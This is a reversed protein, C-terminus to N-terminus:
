EKEVIWWDFSINSSAQDPIEVRFYSGEIKETVTLPVRVASAGKASVFIKSTPKVSTTNIVVSRGNTGTTDDIGDGNADNAIPMIIGEGLTASNEDDVKVSYTGAMVEKAKLKGNLLDLSGESDKYLLSNTNLALAFDIVAKNQEQILAMEDELQTTRKQLNSITADQDNVKGVIASLDPSSVTNEALTTKQVEFTINKIKILNTSKFKFYVRMFNLHEWDIEGTKTGEAINLKIENWGSFLWSHAPKDWQIERADMENGLETHIDTISDANEVYIFFSLTGNEMDYDATDTGENKNVSIEQFQDVNEYRGQVSNDDVTANTLNTKVEGIEQPFDYFTIEEVPRVAEAKNSSSAIVDSMSDIRGKLYNVSLGLYDIRDSSEAMTRIMNQFASDTEQTQNDIRAGLIQATKELNKTANYNQLIYTTNEETKELLSMMMTGYNMGNQKIESRSSVNPLHKNRDIYSQLDELTRLQYGNEFVYDPVNLITGDDIFSGNSVRIDGNVHLKSQPNTTGIGVNGAGDTKVAMNNLEQIASALLSTMQPYKVGYLTGSGTYAALRPNVDAVEEAIFGLDAQGSDKWDFKVPRLQMLTDLGMGLDEINDKLSRLSSCPSLQGSSNKCVYTASTYTGDTYKIQGNVDLTSGPETTGIGVKGDGQMSMVAIPPAYANSGGYLRFIMKNGAAAGATISSDIGNWVNATTTGSNLYYTYGYKIFNAYTGDIGTTTQRQIEGQFSTYASAKAFDIRSPAYGSRYFAMATDEDGYDDRMTQIELSGSGSTGRNIMRWVKANTTSATNRFMLQPYSGGNILMTSKWWNLGDKDGSLEFGVTPNTTGVGVNGEIIMGGDPAQKGLFTSSISTTGISLGGSIAVKSAPNTYGIGVRSDTTTTLYLNASANPQIFLSTSSSMAESTYGQIAGFGNYAGLGVTGGTSGRFAATMYNTSYVVLSSYNTNTTGIGVNGAAAITMRPGSNNTTFYLPHNTTTTLYAGLPYVGYSTGVFTSFTATGDTHSIGFANTTTKVQLSTGPSTTGIGVMGSKLAMTTTVGADVSFLLSQSETRLVADGAIAGASFDDTAEAVGWTSRLTGSSNRLGMTAQKNAGQSQVFIGDASANSVVLLKKLPISAGIGVNGTNFYINSGLTTWQSSGGAALLNTNAGGSRFYLQTGNYWLDGNALPSTVDAGNDLHIQAKSSVSAAMNLLALPNTTGIGVNGSPMITMLPTTTNYFVHRGAAWAIYDIQSSSIGIGGVTSGDDYLRLKPNAGATSSYTGGLDIVDPTATSTSTLAGVVLKQLPNTNGIGVNGTDRIVFSTYNNPYVYLGQDTWLSSGAAATLDDWGGGNYYYINTGDSYIDGSAPSGPTATTGLRMAGAVHLLRAPGTIGIGVNGNMTILAIQNNGDLYAAPGSIDMGQGTTGNLGAKAYIGAGGRGYGGNAVSGGIAVIGAGGGGYTSGGAGGIFVGGARGGREVTGGTYGGGSGMSASYNYGVSGTYMAGGGYYTTSSYDNATVTDTGKVQLNAVPNTMGIGINGGSNIRMRESTSQFFAIPYDESNYINISRPGGYSSDTSGDKWIQASGTNSQIVLDSYTTQASGGINFAVTTATSQIDLQYLPYTTGIGVYGTDSIRMREVSSAGTQRTYFALYGGYNGSTGDTKLGKISAWNAYGTNGTIYRGGFGLVGGTNIAMADNSDISVSSTQGSPTPGVFNAVVGFADAVSNATGSSMIDLKTIPFTMGVGVNGTYYINSGTTTWQSSGSPWSTQTVGGLRIGGSAGMDLAAQPNTTGIGVNGYRLTMVDGLTGSGDMPVAFRMASDSWNGGTLFSSYIKGTKQNSQAAEFVLGPYYSQYSANYNQLILTETTSGTTYVHLPTSPAATGIGVNGNDLINVLNVTNANNNFVYGGTGGNFQLQSSSNRGIGYGTSTTQTASFLLQNSISASGAVDLKQAPASTGIGVSANWITMIPTYYTNPYTWFNLKGTSGGTPYNTSFDIGAGDPTSWGQNNYGGFLIRNEMLQSPSSSGGSRDSYLQIIPTSGNRFLSLTNVPNTTGIGVNGDSGIRMRETAGGATNSTGLAIYGHDDYEGVPSGSDIYSSLVTRNYGTWGIKGHNVATTQSTANNLLLFLNSDSLAGVAGSSNSIQLKGKPNTTGVGVNGGFYSNIAPEVYVGYALGAGTISIDKVYLGYANGGGTNSSNALFGAAKYSASTTQAYGLVGVAAGDNTAVGAVGITEYGGLSQSDGLTVSTNRMFEGQIITGRYNSPNITLTYTGQKSDLTSQPNTTGIGVFGGLPNLAIPYSYGDLSIHRHQISAAFPSASDITFVLDTNGGYNDINFIGATGHTLSPGGTGISSSISLKSYPATTGIGVNGGVITVHKNSGDNSFYIPTGQVNMTNFTGGTRNFSQIYGNAGNQFIEVGSGSTPNTSIGTFRGTGTVDLMSQPATTGIGVNGSKLTVRDTSASLDFIRLEGATPSYLDISLANTARDYIRFTGGAGSASIQGVAELATRPATTGIGVNGAAFIAAYNADAGTASFYGGVATSTGGGANDAVVSSYIGYSNITGGTAGTRSFSQYIGYTTDTGSTVVGTNSLTQYIGYNTGAATSGLGLNNQLTDNVVVYGGNAASLTLDLNQWASDTAVYGPGQFKIYSAGANTMILDYAMSVDGASAMSVPNNFTTQASSVTMIDSGASNLTLLNGAGDSRIYIGAGAPATSRNYIYSLYDASSGAISLLNLPNTTGIGVNGSSNITFLDGSTSGHTRIQFLDSSQGVRGEVFLMSNISDNGSPTVGISGSGFTLRNNNTSGTYIFNNNGDVVMSQALNIYSSGFIGGAVDLKTGPNTTGIGVNSNVLRMWETYDSQLTAAAAQFGFSINEAASRTFIRTGWGGVYGLEMGFGKDTWVVPGYNRSSTSAVDNLVSFGNSVHFKQVPSTIGIGVNNGLSNLILPLSSFTQIKGGAGDFGFELGGSGGNPTGGVIALKGGPNTTGIGVSTNNNFLNVNPTWAGNWYLTQGTITGATVSGLASGGVYYSTANISGNINAAYTSVATTGVGLNGNIIGAGYSHFLGDSSRIEFAVSPTTTNAASEFTWGYGGGNEIYSRQAWSTVYLGSPATLVGRPGVGGVANSMYEVWSNYAQSYWNIGSNPYSDRNIDLYATDLELAGNYVALKSTPNTTGVGVNAGNPNLLLNRTSYSTGPDLSQIYAVDNAADAGFLLGTDSTGDDIAIGASAESNYTSSRSVLLPQYGATATIKAGNGAVEFTRIPNTTAIGVNGNGAVWLLGDAGSPGYINLLPYTVTGGNNGIVVTARQRSAGVSDTFTGASTSGFFYGTVSTTAGAGTDVHLKAGPNTTGIGVNGTASIRMREAYTTGGTTKTTYFALAIDKWATSSAGLISTDTGSSYLLSHVDNSTDAVDFKQQPSTTGIGVNGSNTLRMKENWTSGNWSSFLLDTSIGSVSPVAQGISMQRTGSSDNGFIVFNGTDTSPTGIYTYATSSHVGFYANGAVDLKATPNTTGIGVNGSTTNIRVKETFTTGTQTGFTIIGGGGTFMRAEGGQIAFGYRDGSPGGDYLYIKDGVASAFTLPATPNTTGIGVNGNTSLYLQTGAIARIGIDNFAAGAADLGIMEGISGVQQLVLGDTNNGAAIAGRVDLARQPLTTGIGVSGSSNITVKVANNTMFHLSTANQSGFVSSYASSGTTVTGGASSEIGFILQAGTNQWQSYVQGTGSGTVGLVSTTTGYIHLKYGPNTTGIGVNGNKMRLNEVYASGNWTAFVLDNGTHAGAFAFAHSTALEGMDIGSAGTDIFQLSNFNEGSITGQTTGSGYVTFRRTLNTTGIGVNTNNNFLNSSATWSSGGWYLTQGTITGSGVSGMLSGGVYYSTANISGNVELKYGPNTTGIGVNNTTGSVFLRSGSIQINDDIIVEGSNAASLTLNLNQYPSETQIYGPGAYKIYSATANSMYLDYYFSVDGASTMAVPNNFTTQSPSITVIDSGGSNLTLLNGAGDSRIYLGAGTPATSGNYIYSLYDASSGSVSFLNTPNTTGIGINGTKNISLANVYGSGNNTRFVYGMNSNVGTFLLTTESSIFTTEIGMDFAGTSVRQLRLQNSGSDSIDLKKGPTTTGIGVNGSNIVMSAGTFGTGTIQGGMGLNGSSDFIMRYKAATEDYLAFNGAGGTSSSGTSFLSWKRGGTDTAQLTVAEGYTGSGTLLLDGAAPGALWGSGAISLKVSPNTTGIGVNGDNKLYMTSVSSSSKFGTAFSGSNFWTTGSTYSATLVNTTRDTFTIGSNFGVNLGGYGAADAIDLRSQPATTGIGVNGTGNPMLAIHKNNQSRLEFPGYTSGTIYSSTSATDYGIFILDPTANAGFSAINGSGPTLVSLKYNPITTGIGVNTNNNFLNVNATWNAGNYYLTQGTITGVALTALPSGGVFYTSANVSGGVNLNYIGPNTLGIGVKGEIIMGGDPAKTSLYLSSISTTGIGVGGSITLKNGPITYGIGVNGSTSIVLQNSSGNTGMMIPFSGPSYIQFQNSGSGIAGNTGILVTASGGSGYFNATSSSGEVQLKYTTSTTGIGVNGSVALGNSPASIDTAYGITTASLMNIINAAAINLFNNSSQKIYSGGQTDAGNNAFGYKYGANVLVDGSRIHLLSGPATTGIGVNGSTQKVIFRTAGATTDYLAFDNFSAGAASGLEYVQPTGGADDFLITSYTSSTIKLKADGSVNSVHFLQAPNTTGIGVNGGPKIVLKPATAVDASGGIAFYGTSENQYGVSWDGPTSNTTFFQLAGYNATGARTISVRQSAASQFYSVDNGTSYVSLKGTPNTTGIGVGGAVPNLLLNSGGIIYSYRGTQGLKIGADSNSAVYNAGFTNQANRSIQVRSDSAYGVVLGADSNTEQLYYSALDGIQFRTGPATTGIGVYGGQLITLKENYSGSSYTKLYINGYASWTASDGNSSDDLLISRGGNNGTLLKGNTLINIDGNVDLKAVPTTTGIGVNGGGNLTMITTPVGSGARFYFNDINRNANYTNDFYFNSVGAGDYHMIAQAPTTTDNGLAIAGNYVQAGSIPSWGNFTAQVASNSYVNLRSAPSTTGIGLYGTGLNFWANNNTSGPVYLMASTTTVSGVSLADTITAPSVLTGNRQWYNTSGIGSSWSTRCDGNICLGTLANVYGNAGRVDLQYVPNTTGIGVNGDPKIYIMATGASYPDGGKANSQSIAFDGHTIFANTLGWNRANVSANTSFFKIMPAVTSTIRATAAAGGSVELLEAPSTTGIGVNGSKIRMAETGIGDFFTLYGGGGNSRLSLESTAPDLQLAQNGYAGDSSRRFFIGRDTLLTAVNAVSNSIELKQGPNTTGIGVNGATDIRIKEINNVLLGMPINTTSGVIMMNPFAAYNVGSVGITGSAGSFATLTASAIYSNSASELIRLGASSSQTTIDLKYTPSTTGIGVNATGGPILTINAGSVTNITFDDSTGGSVWSRTGIYAKNTGGRSFDIGAGLNSNTGGNLKMWGNTSAAVGGGVELPALPGTTGIGVNGGTTIWFKSNAPYEAQSSAYGITFADAAGYQRGFFWKESGSSSIMVGQARDEDGSTLELISRRAPAGTSGGAIRIIGTTADYVELKQNPGTTGIGVNSSPSLIINSTVSYLRIGSTDTMDIGGRGTIVFDSSSRVTGAVDLKSAPSTTGIGLYGTGLNFWANNNTSGPVYLMASTNTVSGVSLADTITAPSVLTGNRQWYNTSGIGSSWSTRCDGNICLGTLANVYGNAGRVDLQYVPNTTGIGVNGTTDFTMRFVNNSVIRLPVNSETGIIGATDGVSQAQIKTIIGGEEVRISTNASSGYARIVGNVDLKYGPNTSGIGVSGEFIAGGDPAQKTLYVSSISTTGVSLGGSLTLKSAIAATTGIGILGSNTMMLYDGNSTTTSSIALINGSGKVIELKSNPSTTGIGVNGGFFSAAYGTGSQMVKLATGTGGGSGYTILAASNTGSTPNYTINAAGYSAGTYGVDIRGNSTILNGSNVAQPVASLPKRPAMESDAGVAVGLYYASGSFDLGLDAVTGISVNFIGNKVYIQNTLDDNSNWTSAPTYVCIYDSGTATSEIVSSQKITTNWLLQGAKLSGENSQQAYSIKITGAGCGGGTTVTTTGTETWLTAVNWNETWLTSATSGAGDYIKVVMDYIGDTVPVDSANSLKGQYNFKSSIAASTKFASFFIALFFAILTL